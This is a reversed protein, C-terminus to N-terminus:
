ELAGGCSSGAGATCGFCHDATRVKQQLLASLSDIDFITKAEQGLVGLSGGAVPAPMELMQNFDCDYLRGDYDVSVLTTCMLDDITNPNFAGRLLRMYDETQGHRALSESFRKIPMNTITFLSSFVIGFDQLLRDRYDAELGAQAPPLHPGTPNYVLNLVLGTDTQGYGLTNLQQLATISKAFVGKGRQGDVNDQSYCPLSATIEARHAALFEATDEQGPEFLVTLNCRDMFRRGLARTERLLRRFHPNLEPAGGTVDVLGVSPTDQLLELLRDVTKAQMMETRKPGAEVHCHHCAQNCLKGLNVQLTDLSKRRLEATGHLRLQEHFPAPAPPQLLTASKM